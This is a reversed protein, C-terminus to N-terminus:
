DIYPQDVDLSMGCIDIGRKFRAFGKEGWDTGWSNKIIWYDPSYGVITLAHLGESGKICEHDEFIGGKYHMLKDPCIIGITAPGTEAVHAAIKDESLPLKHYGTIKVRAAASVNKLCANKEDNFPYQQLPVLGDFVAYELATNVFGFNCGQSIWDCDVLEQESLDLLQTTKIAHASEISATAAFAWCAGCYGQDKISTVVNKQRWDFDSPTAALKEPSLEPAPKVSHSNFQKKQLMKSRFEEKTWTAFKTVGYETEPYKLNLAEIERLNDKFVQLRFARESESKYTPKHQLEFELFRAYDSDQVYSLATTSAIVAALFLVVVKM